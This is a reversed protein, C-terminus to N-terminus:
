RKHHNPANVTTVSIRNAYKVKPVGLYRANSLREGRRPDPDPASRNRRHDVLVAKRDLISGATTSCPLGFSSYYSDALPEAIETGVAASRRLLHVAHDRERISTVM